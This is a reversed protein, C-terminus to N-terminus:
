VRHGGVARAGWSFNPLVLQETTNTTSIPKAIVVLDSQDIMEQYSWARSPRGHAMLALAMTLIVTFTTKMTDTHMINTQRVQFAFAKQPKTTQEEMTVTQANRSTTM